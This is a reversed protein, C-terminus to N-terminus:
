HHGQKKYRKRLAWIISVAMAALLLSYIVLRKLRLKFIGSGYYGKIIARGWFYKILTLDRFDSVKRLRNVRPDNKSIDMSALNLDNEYEINILRTEGAPISIGCFLDEGAKEYPHSRGNVTVKKIAPSFSEKKRFFYATEHDSKNELEICKSFSRVDYNGDDRKRMLYTHRVLEGMSVWKVEPQLRNVFEATKNFTDIGNEFLSHHGSFLLPNGLFLDIAIEIEKLRLSSSRDFSLFNGFRITFPRLRYLYDSPAEFGLPINVVNLTALFNYKKLLELTKEPAIGHPFVMVPDYPIGTLRKFEEMRAIAQKINKEHEGLSKASWPDNISTEYKFFERHDHNNGHICISFKDQHDRFISVVEPESRDYNWPIFSITTHFGAKEMEKLLGIYSFYGYPETLWPDDIALNAYVGPSHWCSDGCIYRLFLALALVEAYGRNEHLLGSESEASGPNREQGVFFLEQGAVLVKVFFPYPRPDGGAEVRIITELNSDEVMEFFGFQSFEGELIQGALEHAIEQSDAFRYAGAFRGDNTTKFDTVAGASLTKLVASDTTDTPDIVMVPIHYGQRRVLQFFNGPGSLQSIAGWTIVIAGPAEKDFVKGARDAFNNDGVILDTVGLGYFRCLSHLIEGAASDEDSGRVLLIDMAYGFSSWNFILM